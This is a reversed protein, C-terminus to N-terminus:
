KQKQMTHNFLLFNVSISPLQFNSTSCTVPPHSLHLYFFFVIQFSFIMQPHNITITVIFIFFDRLSIRCTNLLDAITLVITHLNQQLLCFLLYIAPEVNMLKSIADYCGRVCSLHQLLESKKWGRSMRLHQMMISLLYSVVTAFCFYHLTSFEEEKKKEKLKKNQDEIFFAYFRIRNKRSKFNGYVNWLNEIKQM